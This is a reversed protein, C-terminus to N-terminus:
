MQAWQTQGLISQNRSSAVDNFYVGVSLSVSFSGRPTTTMILVWLCFLQKLCCSNPLLGVSTKFHVILIKKLVM